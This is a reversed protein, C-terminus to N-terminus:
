RIKAPESLEKKIDLLKNINNINYISKYKINNSNYYNIINIYDKLNSCKEINNKTIIYMKIGGKNKENKGQLM